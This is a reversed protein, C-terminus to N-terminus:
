EGPAAQRTVSLCARYGLIVADKRRFWRFPAPRSRASGPASASRDAERWSESMMDNRGLNMATMMASARTTRTRNLESYHDSVVVSFSGDRDIRRSDHCTQPARNDQRTSGGKRSGASVGIIPGRQGAQSDGSVM